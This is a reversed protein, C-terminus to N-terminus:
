TVSLPVVLAWDPAPAAPFAEALTLTVSEFEALALPEAVFLVPAAEAVPWVPLWVAVPTVPLTSPALPAM